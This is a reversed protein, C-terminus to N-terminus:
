DTASIAQAMTKEVDVIAPGSAFAEAHDAMQAPDEVSGKEEEDEWLSGYEKQEKKKMLTGINKAAQYLEMSYEMLKKEDTPPVIDGDMLRRAVEMIKGLDDVSEEMAEGQQKAAEMNSIASWQQLLKDMYEQYRDKQEEVAKITLELTAAENAYVINGNEEAKIKEQLEKKQKSLITQQEHYAKIQTSYIRRAEAIKMYDCGKTKDDVDM